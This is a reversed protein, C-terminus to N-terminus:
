RLEAVTEMAKPIIEWPAVPGTVVRFLPHPKVEAVPGLNALWGPARRGLKNQLHRWEYALQGTTAILPVVEGRAIIKRTDFCYGRQKAEEAVGQLYVGITTIGDAGERFRRLQPHRTYGATKGALVAQALLGERWLAVLGKADLYRPHLTWLRM